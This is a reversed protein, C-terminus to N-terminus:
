GSWKWAVVRPVLSQGHGRDHWKYRTRILGATIHLTPPIQWSHNASKLSRGRLNCYFYNHIAYSLSVNKNLFSWGFDLGKRSPPARPACARSSPLSVHVWLVLGTWIEHSCSRYEEYRKEICFQPLRLRRWHYIKYSIYGYYPAVDLSVCVIYLIASLTLFRVKWSFKLAKSAVSLSLCVSLGIAWGAM